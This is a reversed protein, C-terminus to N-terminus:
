QATVPHNVPIVLYHPSVTDGMKYRIFIMGPNKGPNIRWTLPNDGQWNSWTSQNNSVEWGLNSTQPKILIWRNGPPDTGEAPLFSVEFDVPIAQRLQNNIRDDQAIGINGAKDRAVIQCYVGDSPTVKGIFTGDPEPSVPITHWEGQDSLIRLWCAVAENAFWKLQPSKVDDDGQFMVIPPTTDLEINLQYEQVHGENDKFRGIITKPGDGPSLDYDIVSQFPVWEMMSGAEGLSVSVAESLRANDLLNDGTGGNIAELHISVRRYRTVQTDINMSFHLPHSLQTASVASQSTQSLDLNWQFDGWLGFENQWRIRIQNQFDRFFSLPIRHETTMQEGIYVPHSPNTSQLVMQVPFPFEIHVENEQVLPSVQSVVPPASWELFSAQGSLGPGCPVIWLKKLSVSMVIPGGWWPHWKWRTGDESIWVGVLDKTKGQILLVQNKPTTSGWYYRLGTGERKTNSIAVVQAKDKAAEIPRGMKEFIEARKVLLPSFGQNVALGQNCLDLADKLNKKLCQVSAAGLFGVLSRHDHHIASLYEKYALEWQGEQLLLRGQSIEFAADLDSDYFEKTANALSIHTDPSLWDMNSEWLKYDSNVKKGIQWSSLAAKPNGALYAGWGMLEQFLTDTLPTHPYNQTLSSAPQIEGLALYVKLLDKDRTTQWPNPLPSSQLLYGLALTYEGSQLSVAGKRLSIAPSNSGSLIQKAKEPQWDYLYYDALALKVTEIQPALEFARRYYWLATQKQRCYDHYNGAFILALPDQPHLELLHFVQFQFQDLEEKPITPLKSILDSRRKTTETWLLSREEFYAELGSTRFLNLVQEYQTEFDDTGTIIDPSIELSTGWVIRVGCFCFIGFFLLFWSIYKKNM